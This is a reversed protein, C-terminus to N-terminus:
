LLAQQVKELITVVALGNWGDSLPRKGTELCDLFHQCEIKLPETSAILIEESGEDRNNLNADVGKHHITVIQTVEDYVLMKRSGIVITSRQLIPWYWSCQLHATKSDAFSLDAYINDVIGPQLFTQGEAKVGTLAPNDLLYLIVSIDHPAFSWWVNEERRVKGLKNRVTSIHFVQGLNGQQIYEKMWTIAPQYLLLHGIMLILSHQDAYSALEQAEQAKLTMPKEIFVNKGAMLAQKALQYHTPAPTAIVIATNEQELAQQYDSYVKLSPYTQEIYLINQPDIEVVGALASLNHFNKILNRGWHGAGVVIVQKM